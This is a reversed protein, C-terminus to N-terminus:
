NASDLNASLAVPQDGALPGKSSDHRTLAPSKNMEVMMEIAVEISMAISM